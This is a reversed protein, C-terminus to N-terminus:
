ARNTAQTRAAAMAMSASNQEDPTKASQLRAAAANFDAAATKIGPDNAYSGVATDIDNKWGAIVGPPMAVVPAGTTPAAGKPGAPTVGSLANEPTSTPGAGAPTGAAAPAGSTQNSQAIDRQYTTYDGTAQLNLLANKQITQANSTVEQGLKTNKLHSRDIVDHFTQGLTYNQLNQETIKGQTLQRQLDANKLGAASAAADEKQKQQQANVNQVYASGGERGGSGLSAGAASLGTGLSNALASIMAMLNSHPGPAAPTNASTDLGPKAAPNPPTYGGRAAMSAADAPEYQQADPAEPQASDGAGVQPMNPAPANSAGPMALSSIDNIDFAM